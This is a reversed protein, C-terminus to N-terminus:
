ALSRNVLAHLIEREREIYIYLITDPTMLIFFIYIYYTIHLIYVELVM